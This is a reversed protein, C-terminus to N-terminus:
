ELYLLVIRQGIDVCLEQDGRIALVGGRPSQPATFRDAVRGMMLETTKKHSIDIKRLVAGVLSEMGCPERHQEWM